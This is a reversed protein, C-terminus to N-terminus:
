AGPQLPPRVKGVQRKNLRRPDRLNTGAERVMFVLATAVSIVDAAPYAVWLGQGKLFLPLVLLLPVLFIFQRTLSLFITERPKVLAMFFFYALIQIGILPTFLMMVRLPQIGGAIIRADRTFCHMTWGPTIVVGVFIVAGIIVSFLVGWRVARVVRDYRAAGFNYGVIAQFGQALGILPMTVFIYIRGIVSYISLDLPRGYYQLSVNMIAGLISFSFM